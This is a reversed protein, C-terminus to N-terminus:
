HVQSIGSPRTAWVLRRKAQTPYNRPGMASCRIWARVYLWNPSVGRLAYARVCSRM